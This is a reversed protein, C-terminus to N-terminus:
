NHLQYCFRFIFQLKFSFLQLRYSTSQISYLHHESPTSANPKLRESDKGGFPHLLGSLGLSDMCAM